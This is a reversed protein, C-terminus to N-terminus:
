LLDAKSWLVADLRMVSDTDIIRKLQQLRAAHYDGPFLGYRGAHGILELLSDAQPLWEQRRSWRSVFDTADYSSSVLAPFRLRSSDDLKGAHDLAFGLLQELSAEKVEELKEETTILSQNGPSAENSNCGVALCILFAFLLFCNIRKSDNM